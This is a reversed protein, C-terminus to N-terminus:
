GGTRSAPAGGIELVNGGHNMAHWALPLLPFASAVPVNSRRNPLM